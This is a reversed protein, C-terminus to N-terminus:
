MWREVFVSGVGEFPHLPVRATSIHCWKGGGWNPTIKETKKSTKLTFKRKACVGWQKFM